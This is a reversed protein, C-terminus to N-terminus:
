REAILAALNELENRRGALLRETWVEDHMPEITMVVHTQGDRPELEVVTESWYPEVGPIFDALSSYALRRPPEVETFRKRSETSLPMGAGRMFEVQEPATATMTYVLEGGPELELKQVENTFGDPAWWASIGEPTTWLEWVTEAPADFTRELKTNERDQQGDPM